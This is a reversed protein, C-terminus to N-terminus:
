AVGEEFAEAELDPGEAGTVLVDVWAGAPATPPVRIVGDIDPAELHSRAVGPEDILVHLRRGILQQRRRSTIADQVESCEALREAV